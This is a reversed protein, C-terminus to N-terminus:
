YDFGHMQADPPVLDDAARLVEELTPDNGCLGYAYGEDGSGRSEFAYETAFKFPRCAGLLVAESVPQCLLSLPSSCVHEQAEDEEAEDDEEDELEGMEEDEPADEGM